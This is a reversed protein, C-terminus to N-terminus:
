AGGEVRGDMWLELVTLIWVLEGYYAAHGSQHMEIAKDIFEPRIFERKKLRLLNDYALERLPAYTKMWVGFPLGFGQKSKSITEGPLWDRLALKFFHRLNSGKIKLNSPIRCSLEVLEDDLMPYTVDVGALACMHSVKRLDNDALTIQWDLYLM